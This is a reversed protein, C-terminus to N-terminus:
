GYFDDASGISKRSYSNTNLACVAPIAIGLDVGVVKNEDLEKIEKPM